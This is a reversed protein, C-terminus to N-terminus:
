FFNVNQSERLTENNVALVDDLEHLINSTVNENPKMNMDAPDTVCM